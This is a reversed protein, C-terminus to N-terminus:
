LGQSGSVDAIQRETSNDGPPALTKRKTENLLLLGIACCASSAGLLYGAILDTSLHLGIYFQAFGGGFAIALAIAMLLIRLLRYKMHRWILWCAVLGIFCWRIAHGSPYGNVISAHEDFILPATASFQENRIRGAHVPPAKWWMGLAVMIKVSSPKNWMQPCALSNIGFQTNIPIVQPFAQKGVYEAAVGLLLLLFLYPLMRRRYGLLLCASALLLTFLASAGVEGLSKWEFLVCDLSTLPRHLLWQEIHLTPYLLVGTSFIATYIGFLVLLVCAAVFWARAAGIRNLTMSLCKM